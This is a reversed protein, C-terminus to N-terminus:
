GIVNVRYGGRPYHVAVEGVRPDERILSIVDPTLQVLRGTTSEHGYDDATIEVIRGAELRPDPVCGRHVDNPAADRAIDLADSASMDTCADDDFSEIRAFWNALAQRVRVGEFLMPNNKTFWICHYCAADALTFTDGLLYPSSRLQDDLRDFSHLAQAHAHPAVAELSSQSFGASMAARDALFEPPLAPLLEVVVPPVVQMFLRHDAWDEILAARGRLDPPLCAPQPFLREIVRGILATDCYVDAGIQMVPIRRYGGTLPTLDPKPAMLPQQVGHWRLGKFAFVRRIKESFPSLDYHHFLIDTM